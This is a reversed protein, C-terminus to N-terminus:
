YCDATNCGVIEIDQIYKQVVDYSMYKQSISQESSLQLDKRVLKLLECSVNNKDLLESLFHFGTIVADEKYDDYELDGNPKGSISEERQTIICNSNDIKQYYLSILPSSM